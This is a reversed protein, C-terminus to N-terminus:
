LRCVLVLARDDAAAAGGPPVVADILVEAGERLGRQAVLWEAEGQLKDIGDTLDRRPAEVVGDTYLLLADGPACAGTVPQYTGNEIVGLLGGEADLTEWRGSGAHFHIAPPHGASRVAFEGTGLDIAVHVATAFGERWRQRLLYANAAPLFEGPAVSGLLGGFAGSLQLARTGAEQGKGSVDVVAIEFTQGSGTRASVVFDGAFSTRGGVRLAVQADWDRPLPPMRGHAALRDRLDVLMSEGMTGQVGLRARSLALGIAVAATAVVVGAEAVYMADFIRDIGVAFLVVLVAGAIAHMVPPALIFGGMLVPVVLASVPMVDPWAFLAVGVAVTLVAVAASAIPREAVKRAIRAAVSRPNLRM